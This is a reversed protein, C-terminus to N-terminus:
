VTKPSVFGIKTTLAKGDVFTLKYGKVWAAQNLNWGVEPKAVDKAYQLPAVRYETDGYNVRRELITGLVCWDHFGTDVLVNEGIHSPNDWPSSEYM